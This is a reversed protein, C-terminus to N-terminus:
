RGSNRHHRKHRCRITTDAVFDGIDIGCRVGEDADFQWHVGLYIRSRANELAAESLSQFSRPSAPRINGLWDTTQGDLEDSLFTFAIDDTEFFRAIVRFSAAGFTAHGSPYAPFPPTFDNGSQNSAPAGLPTWTPDAGTDPNGDVDAHRIGLIPRWANYTYKMGWCVIGADAMAINLQAFLQANELETNGEQIAIVRAIQNYLRPPTGLGRTGDYSWYIGIETEEDNRLTPTTDGDGGYDKVDNLAHAYAESGLAPPPNPSFTFSRNLAFPKVKGWSPGLFGQNPNLPDVNHNGPAGTPTYVGAVDSGDNKRQKLISRAASRGVQIGKNKAAGSAIDALYEDYLDDFVDAQNPHLAILTEYAATAVAADLSADKGSYTGCFPDGYDDVSNAADYMAIHIIALARSSRTPGGQVPAGFTRSHDQRNAEIAVANWDLISDRGPPDVPRPAKSRDPGADLPLALLCASATLLTTTSTRWNM